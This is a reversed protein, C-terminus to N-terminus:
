PPLILFLQHHLLHRLVQRKQHDRNSDNPRLASGGGDDILNLLRLKAQNRIMRAERMKLYENDGSNTCGSPKSMSSSRSSSVDRHVDGTLVGRIFQQEDGAVKSGDSQGFFSDDSDDSM